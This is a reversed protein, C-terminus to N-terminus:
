KNINYIYKGWHIFNCQNCFFVFVPSFSNSTNPSSTLTVKVLLVFLFVNKETFTASCLALCTKTEQLLWRYLNNHAAHVRLIAIHKSALTLDWTLLAVDAKTLQCKRMQTATETAAWLFAFRLLSVLQELGSTCYCQNQVLKFLPLSGRLMAFITLCLCKDNDFM